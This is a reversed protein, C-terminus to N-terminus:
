QSGRIVRNLTSGEKEARDREELDLIRQLHDQKNGHITIGVDEQLQMIRKAEMVQRSPPQLASHPSSITAAAAVDENQILCAM